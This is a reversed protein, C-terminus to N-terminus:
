AFSAEETMKAFKSYLSKFNKKDLPKGTEVHYKLGVLVEHLKKKMVGAMGSALIAPTTRFVFDTDVRTRNESIKTLKFTAVIDKTAPMGVADVSLLELPAAELVKERISLKSGFSCVRECGVEGDVGATLISATTGPHFININSFQKFLVDWIKERDTNILISTSLAKMKAM